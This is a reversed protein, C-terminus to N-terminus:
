SPEECLNSLQMKALSKIIYSSYIYIINYM